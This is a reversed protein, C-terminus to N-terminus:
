PMIEVIYKGNSHPGSTKQVRVYVTGHDKGLSVTTCATSPVLKFSNGGYGTKTVTKTQKGNDCLYYAEIKFAASAPLGSLKIDVQAETLCWNTDTIHLKFWDERGNPRNTPATTHKRADSPIVASATKTKACDDVGQYIAKAAYVNEHVPSDDPFECGNTVQGDVDYYEAECQIQCVGKECARLTNKVDKGPCVDGCKSCHDVTGLACKPADPTPPPGDPVSGSDLLPPYTDVPPALDRKGDPPLAGDSGSYHPPDTEGSACGFLLFVTCLAALTRM